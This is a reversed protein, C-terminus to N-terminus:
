RPPTSLVPGLSPVDVVVDTEGSAVGALEITEYPSAAVLTWEGTPLGRVTFRGDRDIGDAPFWMPGRRALVRVYSGHVREPEWGRLRGTIRNAESAALEFPGATPDINELLAVREDDSDRPRALLTGRPGRARLIRFRGDGEVSVPLAGWTTPWWVNWAEPDEVHLRGRVEVTRAVLLRVGESPVEVAQPMTPPDGDVGTLVWLEARGPALGSLEFSGTGPQSVASAALHWHAVDRAMVVAGGRPLGADDVVTGRVTAGRELQIEVRGPVVTRVPRVVGRLYGRDSPLVVSVDVGTGRRLMHVRATGEANTRARLGEGETEFPQARVHAGEVPLGESDRVVVELVAERELRLVVHEIPAAVDVPETPLLGVEEKEATLLVRGAPIGDLSFRGEKDTNGDSWPTKSGDAGPLSARVLAGSVPREDEDQVVGRVEVAPLLELRVESVSTDVHELWAACLPLLAGDTTRPESVGIRADRALSSRPIELVGDRVQSSFAHLPNGEASSQVYVRARPVPVGSSDVVLVRLVDRNSEDYRLTAIDGGAVVTGELRVSGSWAEYTGPGAAPARLMGNTVKAFVRPTQPHGARRLVVNLIRHPAGQTDVIRAKLWLISSVVIQVGELQEGPRLTVDRLAPLDDATRADVRLQYGGEAVDAFRFRGEADTRTDQAGRPWLVREVPDSEALASGMLRVTVGVVPRGDPEHVRGSVSATVAPDADHPSAGPAGVGDTRPSGVLSPSAPASDAAQPDHQTPSRVTPEQKAEDRLLFAGVAIAGLVVAVLATRRTRM